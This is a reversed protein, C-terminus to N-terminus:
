LAELMKLGKETIRYPARLESGCKEVYGEVRLFSFIANFSAYSGGHRIAHRTLEVRSTPQRSLLRLIVKTIGLRTKLDM